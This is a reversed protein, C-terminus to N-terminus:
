HSAPRWSPDVLLQIGEIPDAYGIHKKREPGEPKSSDTAYFDLRRAHGEICADYDAFNNLAMRLPPNHEETWWAALFTYPVSGDADVSGRTVELEGKTTKSLLDYSQRASEQDDFSLCVTRKDVVTRTPASTNAATSALKECAREILSIVVCFGFFAVIISRTSM